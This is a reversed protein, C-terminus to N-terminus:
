EQRLTRRGRSRGRCSRRRLPSPGRLRRPCPVFGAASPRRCSPNSAAPQAREASKRDRWTRRSFREDILHYIRALGGKSLRCQPPRLPARAANVLSKAPFTDPRRNPCSQRAPGNSSHGNRACQPATQRDPGFTTKIM